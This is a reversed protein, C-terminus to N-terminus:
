LHVQTHDATSHLTVLNSALPTVHMGFGISRRKGAQRFTNGNGRVSLSGAVLRWSLRLATAIRKQPNSLTYVIRWHQEWHKNRRELGHLFYPDIHRRTM